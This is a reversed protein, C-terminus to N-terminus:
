GPGLSHETVDQASKPQPLARRVLRAAGGVVCSSLAYLFAILGFLGLPVWVSASGSPSLTQRLSPVLAGIVAVAVAALEALLALALMGATHDLRRSAANFGGVVVCLGMSGYLVSHWATSHVDASLAGLAVTAAFVLVAWPIGLWWSWETEFTLGTSWRIALAVSVMLIAALPYGAVLVVFAFLFLGVGADASARDPSTAAVVAVFAILYLGLSLLAANTVEGSPRLGVILSWVVVPSAAVVVLFLSLFTAEPEVREWNSANSMLVAVVVWAFLSSAVGLTLRGLVRPGAPM